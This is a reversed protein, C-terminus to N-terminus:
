DTYLPMDFTFVTETDSSKMSLSGSHARAIESSIFLGLGLGEKNPAFGDRWYPKFLNAAKEDPIKKGQNTVSIILRGSQTTANLVVASGPIGHDIANKLINSALQAIRKPNCDAHLGDQITAIIIPKEHLANLEAVVQELENDLPAAVTTFGLEDGLKGRVLDTLDDALAVIRDSSRRIRNIIPTLSPDKNKLNLLDAGAVISGLPNRMDHSLIAIFQEREDGTVLEQELASKTLELEADAQLQASILKAFLELTSITSKSSLLKPQPDLGCLSGFYVGDRSYVPTSFYSEFGYMKPTHHDRYMDDQSVHDIVVSANRLRVEKCITTEIDLSDGPKLGFELEDLVACTTWSDETVRAVCVFGLGTIESITKLITPVAEIRSIMAVDNSVPNSM